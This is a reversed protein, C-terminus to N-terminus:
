ESSSLNALLRVRPLQRTAFRHVRRATLRSPLRDHWEHMQPTSYQPLDEQDGPYATQLKPNCPCEWHRKSRVRCKCIQHKVLQKSGLESELEGTCADADQSSTLQGRLRPDGSNASLPLIGLALCHADQIITLLSYCRPRM